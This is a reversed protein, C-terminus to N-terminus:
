RAYEHCRYEHTSTRHCPEERIALGESAFYGKAAGRVSLPTPSMCRLEFLQQAMRWRQCAFSSRVVLWALARYCVFAAIRVQASVLESLRARLVDAM